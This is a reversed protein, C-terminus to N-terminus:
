RGLEQVDLMLQRTRLVPSGLHYHLLARLMSKLEPVTWAWVVFALLWVAWVAVLLSAVRVYSPSERMVM